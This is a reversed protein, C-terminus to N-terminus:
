VKVSSVSAVIFDRGVRLSAKGKSSTCWECLSSLEYSTMMLYQQCCSGRCSSVGGFGRRRTRRRCPRNWAKKKKKMYAQTLRMKNMLTRLSYMKQSKQYLCILLSHHCCHILHQMPLLLQILLGRSFFSYIGMM